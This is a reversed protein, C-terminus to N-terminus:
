RELAKTIRYVITAAEARNATNKPGLKNGGIGGVIGASYLQAFASQAYSAIEDYDKFQYLIYLPPQILNLGATKLARSSYYVIDERTIPDYPHFMGNEDPEIIKYRYATMVYRHFWDNPTVDRFSGVSTEPLALTTVLMKIFEARTIKGSPNFNGKGDGHIVGMSTLTNIADAAWAFGSSIDNYVTVPQTRVTIENSPFSEGAANKSKVIYTYSRNPEVTNDSFVIVNRDVRGVLEFGDGANGKRYIRFEDENDSLDSWTLVVRESGVITPNLLNPAAPIKTTYFVENTYTETAPEKTEARVRIIYDVDRAPVFKYMTVNKPLKELIIWADNMSTKYEVVYNDEMDSFDDWGLYLLGDILSVELNGAGKEFSIRIPGTAAFESFITNNKVARVQYTYTEGDTINEDSYVYMGSGVNGIHKWIGESKAMRWIEFGSEVARDYEWALYVRNPVISKIELNQVKPLQEATVYIEPTYESEVSGSRLKMRYVNLSGSSVKDIYSGANTLTTLTTFNGGEDLKEIVITNKDAAEKSWELLIETSSIARGYFHTEFSLKTYASVGTASPLYETTFGGDYRAKIRYYYRTGPTLDNDTYETEGPRTTHIEEWKSSGAERREIIVVSNTPSIYSDGPYKWSLVLQTSYTEKIQFSVPFLFPVIVEESEVGSLSANFPVVRYTYLQGNQVSRDTFTTENAKTSGIRVFSGNGTKREIRYGSENSSVDEWSIKVSSTSTIEAKVNRPAKLFTTVYQGSSSYPSYLYVSSALTVARIRYYYRTAESLGKDTYSDESGPVSAITQWTNSGATRREIVTQFSSEPIKNSAPYTWKLEVESDSIAKVTLGTPYLFEVPYSERPAGLESGKTAFVRYVYTHGNSISTDTYSSVNASVTAITVFNGSDTKRQITFRTAGAVNNDWTVKISSNNYVFANVYSPTGITDANSVGSFMLVAVAVIPIIAFIVKKM